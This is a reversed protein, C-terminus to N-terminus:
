DKFGLWLRLSAFFQRLSILDNAEVKADEHRQAEFFV